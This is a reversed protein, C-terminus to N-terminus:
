SQIEMTATADASLRAALSLWASRASAGDRPTPMVTVEESDFKELVHLFPRRTELPLAEVMVLAQERGASIKTQLRKVEDVADILDPLVARVEDLLVFSTALAIRPQLEALGAHVRTSLAQVSRTAGDAAFVAARAGALKAEIEQRKAADALPPESGDDAESWSLMANSEAANLMALQQELPGVAAKARELRAIRETLTQAEAVGSDRADLLEALTRRSGTLPVDVVRIEPPDVQRNQIKPMVSGENVAVPNRGNKL